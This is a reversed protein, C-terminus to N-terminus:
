YQNENERIIQRVRRESLQLMMALESIKIRNKNESIFAKTFEQSYLRRPFSVTVGAFNNHIKIVAADGVIDVLKQYIESYGSSDLKLIM